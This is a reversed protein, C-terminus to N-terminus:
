NEKLKNYRIEAAIVRVIKGNEDTGVNEISSLPIIRINTYNTASYPPVEPLVCPKASNQEFYDLIDELKKSGTLKNTYRSYIDFQQVRVNRPTVQSARPVIWLGQKPKGTSDLPVEEFFLDTDITGYGEEELLKLVHLNIM